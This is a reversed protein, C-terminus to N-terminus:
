FQLLVKFNTAGNRAFFDFAEPAQDMPFIESILKEVPFRNSGVLAIVEEFDSGVANRSGIVTLYNNRIVDFHFESPGKIVGILVIRGGFAASAICDEMTQPLGVAEVAVDFGDGNTYEEVYHTLPKSGDNLITHQIGLEAALRLKDAAVDCLTVEAGMHLAALAALIGITGAGVVLVKEGPTINARKIAHYGICFPEVLALRKADLGNGNYVRERPLSIYQGFIGDRQVGCTKNSTCCNVLGRRCSYCTGCNFYPNGTVVSGIDLDSVKAGVAVVQASFEHGAIRPYSVGSMTGKYVSLDSGCIGGYLLKLLVEEPGCVPMAADQVVVEMPQRIVVQKITNM